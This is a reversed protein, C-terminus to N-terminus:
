FVQRTVTKTASAGNVTYSITANNADTFTMTISGVQTAHVASTDFTPGFPPGTTSYLAGSCSSGSLPCNPAVYWVPRGGADYVYWALFVMGFQQTVVIGWGSESPNFWLDTYDVAPPVTGSWFAQRVLAVSRSVGNVTYSMTANGADRFAVQLNGVTNVHVLSPNFTSSFFTPGTVEYVPGTCTGATGTVGAPLNCNSAFYWKPNGSADYTYWAAVVVNRRQTFTVGWGSESSGAWWLGSLASPADPAAGTLLAASCPSTGSVSVAGQYVGNSLMSSASSGYGVYLSAGAVNPTSVNNLISVSQQQSSLVGTTYAQMTSSSVATLHGSSDVQALVCPDPGGGDQAIVPAAPRARKPSAGSVTSQRAHAFVFVSGFTGVDQTRPAIQATANAITPTINSTVTIPFIPPRVNGGSGSGSYAYTLNDTCVSGDNFNTTSTCQETGSLAFPAATVQITWAPCMFHNTTTSTTNTSDVVPFAITGNTPVFLSFTSGFPNPLTSGDSCAVGGGGSFTLTGTGDAGITGTWPWSGSCNLTLTAPPNTFNCTQSTTVTIAGTMSGSLQALADVAFGAAIALALFFRLARGVPM